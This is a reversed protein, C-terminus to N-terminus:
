YRTWSEELSMRDLYAPTKDGVYSGAINFEYFDRADERSMGDRSMLILIVKESDYVAFSEGGRYAIGLFAENYGTPILYQDDDNSVSVIRRTCINFRRGLSM